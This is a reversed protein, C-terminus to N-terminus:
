AFNLLAVWGCDQSKDIAVAFDYDSQAHTQLDNAAARSGFLIALRVYPLNTFAQRLSDNPLNKVKGYIRHSEHIM